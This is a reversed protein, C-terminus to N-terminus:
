HNRHSDHIRILVVKLLTNQDNTFDFYDDLWWTVVELSNNFKKVLGCGIISCALLVISLCRLAFTVKPIMYGLRNQLVTLKLCM